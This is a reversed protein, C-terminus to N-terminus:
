TKLKNVTSVAIDLQTWQTPAFQYTLKASGTCQAEVHILTEVVGAEDIQYGKAPRLDGSRSRHLILLLQM